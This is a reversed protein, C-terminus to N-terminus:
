TMLPEACRRDRTPTPLITPCVSQSCGDTWATTGPPNLFGHEIAFCAPRVAPNQASQAAGLVANIDMAAVIEAGARAAALALIGSGTGVDAVQKGKLCNTSLPRLSSAPLFYRPHVDARRGSPIQQM